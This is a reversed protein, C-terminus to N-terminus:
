ILPNRLIDSIENLKRLASALRDYLDVSQETAFYEAWGQLTHCMGTEEDEYDGTEWMDALSAYTEAPHPGLADVIESPYQEILMTVWDGYDTGPNEHLINWACEKLTDYLEFCSGSYSPKPESM